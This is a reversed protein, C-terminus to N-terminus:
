STFYQTYDAALQTPTIQSWKGGYWTIYNNLPVSFVINDNAIVLANTTHGTTTDAMCQINGATAGFTANLTTQLGTVGDTSNYQVFTQIKPLETKPLYQVAAM